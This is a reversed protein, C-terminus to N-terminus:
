MKSLVPREQIVIQLLRVVTYQIRNRSKARGKSVHTVELDLGPYPCIKSGSKFVELTLSSIAELTWRDPSSILAIWQKKKISLYLTIYVKIGPVREIVM